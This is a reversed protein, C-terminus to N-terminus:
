ARTTQYKEPLYGRLKHYLGMITQFYADAMMFKTSGEGHQKIANMARQEARDMEERSLLFLMIFDDETVDIQM